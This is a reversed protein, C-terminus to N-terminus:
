VIIFLPYYENVIKNFMSIKYEHPYRGDIEIKSCDYKTMYSFLKNM